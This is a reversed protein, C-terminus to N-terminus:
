CQGVGTCIEEWCSHTTTKTSDSCIPKKQGWTTIFIFFEVENTSNQENTWLRFPTCSGLPSFRERFGDKGASPADHVHRWSLGAAWGPVPGLCWSFRMSICFHVSVEKFCCQRPLYASSWRQIVVSGAQSQVEHEMSLPLYKRQGLRISVIRTSSENFHSTISRGEHDIRHLPLDLLSGTTFATKCIGRQGWSIKTKLCNEYCRLWIPINQTCIQLYGM